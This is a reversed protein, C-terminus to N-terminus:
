VPEVETSSAPEKLNLNIDKIIPSRNNLKRFLTKNNMIKKLYFDFFCIKAKRNSQLILHAARNINKKTESSRLLPYIMDKIEKWTSKQPISLNHAEIFNFIKRKAKTTYVNAM